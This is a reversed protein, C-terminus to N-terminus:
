AIDSDLTLSFAVFCFRDFRGFGVPEQVLEIMMMMMMMMMTMIMMMMMMMMDIKLRVPCIDIDHVLICRFCWRQVIQDDRVIM